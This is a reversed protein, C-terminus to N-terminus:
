TTACEDASAEMSASASVVSPPAPSVNIEVNLPSSTRPKNLIAFLSVEKISIIPVCVPPSGPEPHSTAPTAFAVFSWVSTLFLETLPPFAFQAM